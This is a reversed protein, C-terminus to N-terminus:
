YIAAAGSTTKIRIQDVYKVETAGPVTYQPGGTRQHQTAFQYVYPPETADPHWTWDFTSTDVGDPVTWNDDRATKVARPQSVYKVETAGPVSYVPGGTRQWQTGFQYILPPDGPDPCWTFDFSALGEPVTWRDSIDILKARPWTVYKRETAGPVHYEVTPMIEAPWWQNGFVYIYPPDGPDPQWSYDWDCDVLTHWRNCHQEPLVAKPDSVYKIETAGPVTYRVTPFVEAPWWQNGFVYIYPPDKPHPRWSYDWACETLLEVRDQHKALLQAQPRAHYKRETAGGTAYVPGGESWWQTAFEHIYAPEGPDPHWSYDWDAIDYPVLWSRLDPRRQIVPSVHYNTESYGAKPVLYVGSDKQHQSPWAHRQTAEWPKPVYLWDWHDLDALYTIWWFYETRSQQQAHELSDAPQEHAVANPKTGSYFVDFM